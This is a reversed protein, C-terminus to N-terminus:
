GDLMECYARSAQARGRMVDEQDRPEEPEHVEAPEDVEAVHALVELIRARALLDADLDVAHARARRRREALARGLQEALNM